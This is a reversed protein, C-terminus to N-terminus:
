GVPSLIASDAGATVAATSARSSHRTYEGATMQEKHLAAATHSWFPAVSISPFLYCVHLKQQLRGDQPTGQSSIAQFPALAGAAVTGWAVMMLAPWDPVVQPGFMTSGAFDFECERLVAVRFM